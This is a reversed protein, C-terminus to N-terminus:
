GWLKVNEVRKRKIAYYEICGYKKVNVNKEKRTNTKVHCHIINKRKKEM